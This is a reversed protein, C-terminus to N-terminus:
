KNVLALSHYAQLMKAAVMKPEHMSNYYEVSKKGIQKRLENNNVLNELVEALNEITANQVPLDKGYIPMREPLIYAVVVKGMEMAQQAAVGFAGWIMQDVLIDANKLIHQYEANTLGQLLQFKFPCNKVKLKDIAELVYQTGKAVPSTPAHIILPETNFGIEKATDHAITNVSAHPVIAVLQKLSEPFFMGVDWVIFKYHLKALFNLKDATKNTDNITKFEYQENEYAYKFYPNRVLEIATERIDSGVFTVYKHKALKGIIWFTPSSLAGYVHVVDCWMLNKILIFLAKIKYFFLKIKGPNNDICICSLNTYNSYISRKFDFTFAKVPIGTQKFGFALSNLVSACNTGFLLVNPKDKM